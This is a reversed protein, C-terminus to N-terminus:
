SQRYMHWRDRECAASETMGSLATAAAATQPTVVMYATAKSRYDRAFFAMFIVASLLAAVVTYALLNTFRQSMPNLSFYFSYL